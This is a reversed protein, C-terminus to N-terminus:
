LILSDPPDESNNLLSEMLHVARIDNYWLDELQSLSAFLAHGGTKALVHNPRIIILILWLFLSFIMIFVVELNLVAVHSKM